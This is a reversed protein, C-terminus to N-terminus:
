GNNAVKRDGPIIEDSERNEIIEKAGNLLLKILGVPITIFSGTTNYNDKICYSTHNQIFLAAQNANIEDAYKEDIQGSIALALILATINALRATTGPTDYLKIFKEYDAYEDETLCYKTKKESIYSDFNITAGENLRNSTLALKKYEEYFNTFGEHCTSILGNPLFGLLESGSGCLGHPHDYANFNCKPKFNVYPTITTYYKFFRNQRNDRELEKCNRIFDAFFLGDDKTVPAPVATNPVAIEPQVNPINLDFLIKYWDEFFLYYDKINEKSGLTRISVLDLTPKFHVRLTVNEPLETKLREAFIEFNKRCRETVGTGRNFDNIHQPGDLSMQLFYTFKRPAYQEFQKILGFFKDPWEPFSFNTSSFMEDFYPYYEIAQHVLKHMREMKLFPEGGWTEMRRLQYPPFYKKLQEIYYDGEFSEELAKDIKVLIPNKDIGCYHCKLNCTGCSYFVAVRRKRVFEKETNVPM